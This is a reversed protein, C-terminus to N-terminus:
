RGQGTHTPVMWTIWAMGILGTAVIAAAVWVADVIGASLGVALAIMVCAIFKARVPMGLGARYDAILQGAVPLGLLWAELRPSSKSFCWAAFVFFGTSPLGPVIIGIVGVAVSTLGLLVWALRTLHHRPRRPHLPDSGIM